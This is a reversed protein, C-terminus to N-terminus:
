VSQAVMADAVRKFGAINAGVVYDLGDATNGDKVCANHIGAMIKRLQNDVTEADWSTHEANQSMELCSTAVGGANVAKGPAFTIGKERFYSIAEPTSGMNSVEAVYKVKNDVLNKADNGNLENQIACPMAIDVPVEWPKRGAIFKSGAFKEAYPAVIDKGSSRLSLMYEVKDLNMGDEDLIYGDPGSITVVKAGLQVAKLAAGWAVNGFGSIAIRKGAIEENKLALMHQLFYIAGFGTAEPRILSGGWGVTKGTLVGNFRNALRRYEGFLFGIERGGVGLDGAPVDTDPGIHRFLERMFAKCFDTVERVSRGKPNFDSGGKGGGMPLMTLSNKFTQEFGLFKLVSLTVTPHFRLGGKYPGLSGNFQVRYGTNVNIKGNDDVWPVQFTIIREPTVMRELICNEEYEPHAKLVDDLSAFVEEVSQLFEKEWPAKKQQEEFVRAAYDHMVEKDGKKIRERETEAATGIGTHMLLVLNEAIEANGPIVAHRVVRKRCGNGRIKKDDPAFINASRLFVWGILIVDFLYKELNEIVKKTIKKCCDCIKQM